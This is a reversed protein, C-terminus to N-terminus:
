SKHCQKFITKVNWLPINRFHHLYWLKSVETAENTLPLNKGHSDGKIGLRKMMLRMLTTCIFSVSEGGSIRLVDQIEM